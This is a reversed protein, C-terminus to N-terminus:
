AAILKRITNKNLKDEVDIKDVNFEKIDSQSPLAFM